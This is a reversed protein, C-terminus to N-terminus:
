RGLGDSAEISSIIALLALIVLPQVTLRHQVHSVFRQSHTGPKSSFSTLIFSAVTFATQVDGGMATWIIGVLCSSLWPVTGSIAIRTTNWGEVFELAHRRDKQRLRFAWQVWDDTSSLREPNRYAYMIEQLVFDDFPL